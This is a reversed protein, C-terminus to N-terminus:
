ALDGMHASRRKPVQPPPGLPDVDALAKVLSEEEPEPQSKLFATFAAQRDGLPLSVLHHALRQMASSVGDLEGNVPQGTLLRSIIWVDRQPTKMHPRGGRDM